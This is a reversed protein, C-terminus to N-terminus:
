FHILKGPCRPLLPQGVAVPAEPSQAVPAAEEAVQRKVIPVAPVEAILVPAEVSEASEASLLGSATPDHLATVKHHKLAHITPTYGPGATHAHLLVPPPPPLASVNANLDVLPPQLSPFFPNNFTHGNFHNTVSNLCAM